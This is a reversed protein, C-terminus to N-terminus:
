RNLGTRAPKWRNLQMGLGIVLGSQNGMWNGTQGTWVSTYPQHRPFRHQIATCLHHHYISFSSFYSIVDLPKPLLKFTLVDTSLIHLSVSFYNSILHILLLKIRHFPHQLGTYFQCQSIIITPEFPDTIILYM